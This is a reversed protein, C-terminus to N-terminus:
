ETKKKIVSKDFIALLSPLVFIVLLYASLSGICLTLLISSVAGNMLLGCIFAVTILIIASISIARVSRKLVEPLAERRSYEKRVEIYYNTLLIGYDVMSGMLICQVIILAIFYMAILLRAKVSNKQEDTLDEFMLKFGEEEATDPLEREIIDLGARMSSKKPLYETLDENVTVFNMLVICICMVVITALFLWFRKKVLFEAMKTM